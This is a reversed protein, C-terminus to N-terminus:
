KVELVAKKDLNLCFRCDDSFLSFAGIGCISSCFDPASDVIDRASASLGVHVDIPLFGSDSGFIVFHSFLDRKCIVRSSCSSCENLFAM